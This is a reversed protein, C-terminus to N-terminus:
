RLMLKKQQKLWSRHIILLVCLGGLIVARSLTMLMAWIWLSLLAINIWQAPSLSKIKRIQEGFFLLM